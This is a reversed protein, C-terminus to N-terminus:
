CQEIEKNEWIYGCGRGFEFRQEGPYLIDQIRGIPQKLTNYWTHFRFHVTRGSSTKYDDDRIWTSFSGKKVTLMFTQDPSFYMHGIHNRYKKYIWKLEPPYPVKQIDQKPYKITPYPYWYPDGNPARWTKIKGHTSIWLTCRKDPSQYFPAKCECRIWKIVEPKGFLELPFLLTTAIAASTKLFNRRKMRDLM